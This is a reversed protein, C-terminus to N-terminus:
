FLERPAPLVSKTDLSDSHVDARESGTCLASENRATCLYADVEQIGVAFGPPRGHAGIAARAACIADTSSEIVIWAGSDGFREHGAPSEALPPGAGSGPAGSFATKCGDPCEIGNICIEGDGQAAHADGASFLAGCNFVPLYLRAGSCLERVDMNGGFPDPLGPLFNETERRRWEWSAASRACRSWRLRWRGAEEGDLRGSSFIRGPSIAGESIGARSDREVLGM